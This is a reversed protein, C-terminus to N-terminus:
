EHTSKKVIGGENVAITRPRLQIPIHFLNPFIILM